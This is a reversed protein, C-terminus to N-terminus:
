TLNFRTKVANYNQTIEQQSLTRNYLKFIPLKGNLYRSNWSTNSSQGNSIQIINSGQFSGTSIWQAYSGTDFTNTSELRGNVYLQLTGATTDKNFIVHYYSGTNLITTSVVARYVQTLTIVSAEVTKNTNNLYVMGAVPFSYSGMSNQDYGGVSTIASTGFRDVRFIVEIASSSLYSWSSSISAFSGTGDFNLVRENLYSYQPISSTVSGTSLTATNNNGSLDYWSTRSGSIYPSVYRLNESQAFTFYLPTNIPLSNATWYPYQTNNPATVTYSVRQWSGSLVFTTSAGWQSNGVFSGSGSVYASLTFQSGSYYKGNNGQHFDAAGGAALKVIKLVPINTGFPGPVTEVSYSHSPLTWSNFTWSGTNNLFEPNTYQNVTPDLPISQPNLTDLHLVLGNTVIPPTGYYM